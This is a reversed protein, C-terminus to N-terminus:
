IKIFGPLPLTCVTVIYIIQRLQHKNHCPRIIIKSFSFGASISVPIKPLIIKLAPNPHRNLFLVPQGPCVQNLLPCLKKPQKKTREATPKCITHLASDILSLGKPHEADKVLGADWASCTTLSPSPLM